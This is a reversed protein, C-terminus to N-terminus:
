VHAEDELPHAGSWAAGELTSPLGTDTWDGALWLGPIISPGAEPRLQLARASPAITASSERHVHAEQTCEDPWPESRGLWSALQALAIKTIEKAPKGDLSRAAGALIAVPFGARARGEDDPRRVIFHFPGDGVLAVLSDDFPLAKDPLKTYVTLIPTAQLERAGKTFPVQEELMAAEKWPLALVVRDHTQLWEGSALRVRPASSGTALATVKQGLRLDCGRTALVRQAPQDLIESWPVKPLWIASREKSGRFAERLTRLFLRAQAFEPEENMIARCLPEFLLSVARKGIDQKIFWERLSMESQPLRLFPCVGALLLEMREFLTMGKIRLFGQGLHLPAPLSGAQMRMFKGGRMLWSLVLGKSKFFLEESGLDQLLRRFHEYCALIVHPGNDLKHDMNRNDLSWARGGLRKRAEVLSVKWGRKMHAFASSLGAVGGGIILVSLRHSM